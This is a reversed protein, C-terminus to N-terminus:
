EGELRQFQNDTCMDPMDPWQGGSTLPIMEVGQISEIGSFVPVNTYTANVYGPRDILTTYIAYPLFVSDSPSQSQSVDPAPLIISDIIGDTNTLGSFMERAENKLNLIVRVRANDIPYTRDNAYVQVKLYGQQPNNQLFEAYTDFKERNPNSFPDGATVEIGPIDRASQAPESDNIVPDPIEEPIIEEQEIVPVFDPENETFDTQDEVSIEETQPINQSENQKSLEVLERRYKEIINEFEEM